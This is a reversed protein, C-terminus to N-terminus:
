RIKKNKIGNKILVIISILVYLSTYNIFIDRYASKALPEIFQNLWIFGFALAMKESSMKSEEFIPYKKKDAETIKRIVKCPNGVAIVGNPIDKNVVSGCWHDYQQRDDSGAIGIQVAHGRKWSRRMMTQMMYIVM